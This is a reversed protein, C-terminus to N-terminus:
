IDKVLIVLIKDWLLDRFIIILIVKMRVFRVKLIEVIGNWM